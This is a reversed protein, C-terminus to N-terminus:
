QLTGYFNYKYSDVWGISQPVEEPLMSRKSFFGNRDPVLFTKVLSTQDYCIKNFRTVRILYEHITTIDANTFRINRKWGIFLYPGDNIPISIRWGYFTDVFISFIMLDHTHRFVNVPDYKYDVTEKILCREDFYIKGTRGYVTSLRLKEGNREGSMSSMIQHFVIKQATTLQPLFTSIRIDEISGKEPMTYTKKKSPNSTVIHMLDGEFDFISPKEQIHHLFEINACRSEDPSDGRDKIKKLVEQFHDHWYASYEIGMLRDAIEREKKSM